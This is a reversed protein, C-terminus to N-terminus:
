ATGASAPQAGPLARRLARKLARGGFHLIALSLGRVTRLNFASLGWRERRHSMWDQKYADDGSLFDVEQVRDIDIVHRMLEATLLSGVSHKVHRQDYALKFIAAVGDAVMWVQAAAPEGDVWAVGMRLWGEAACTRILQPMFHPHGEPPKWSARYVAEYAAIADELRDGGSVIEFRLRNGLQQRKRKMTNRLRAPLASAYEDYSRGTVKLYWNGFCLYPQVAMGASRFASQLAAYTAAERDLPFLMAVDWRAAAISRALADLCPQVVAGDAVFPNFIPTYYNAATVLRRPMFPNTSVQACMPLLAHVQGDESELAHLRLGPLTGALVRFWPLSQFVGGRFLAACSEPLSDFDEYVRVRPM